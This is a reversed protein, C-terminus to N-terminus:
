TGINANILKEFTAQFMLHIVSNHKNFNIWIYGLVGAEHLPDYLTRIKKQKQQKNTQLTSIQCLGLCSQSVNM